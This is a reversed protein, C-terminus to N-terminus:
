TLTLIHRTHASVLAVFDALEREAAALLTASWADGRAKSPAQLQSVARMHAAVATAPMDFTSVAQSPCYQVMQVPFKFSYKLQIHLWPRVNVQVFLQLLFCSRRSM